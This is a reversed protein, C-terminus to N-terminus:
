IGFRILIKKASLHINFKEGPLISLKALYNESVGGFGDLGTCLWTGQFIPDKFSLSKSKEIDKDCYISDIFGNETLEIRCNKGASLISNDIVPYRALEEESLECKIHYENDGSNENILACNPVPFEAKFTQNPKDAEQLM